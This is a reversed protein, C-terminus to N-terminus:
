WVVPEFFESVIKDSTVLKAGREKALAVIVRDAPDKHSWNLAVSSIWLKHDVPVIEVLGSHELQEAFYEIEMGIALKKRAVKLAIEWLSISSVIAQNEASVKALINKAKESLEHPALTWWLLTATDLVVM